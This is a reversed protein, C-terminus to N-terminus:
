KKIVKNDKIVAKKEAENVTKNVVANNVVKTEKASNTSATSTVTKATDAKVNDTKVEKTEKTKNEKDEIKVEANDQEVTEEVIDYIENILKIINPHFNEKNSLDCKDLAEKAAEKGQQPLINAVANYIDHCNEDHFIAYWAPKNASDNCNNSCYYYSQSCVICKRNDKKAM